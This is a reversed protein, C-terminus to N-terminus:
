KEAEMLENVHLIFNAATGTVGEKKPVQYMPNKLEPHGKIFTKLDQLTKGGKELVTHFEERAKYKADALAMQVRSHANIEGEGSTEIPIFIMEKYKETVAVQVADSITSPMCGFPKISLVMHSLNHTHYYINKAIEMYGEGGEIRINYYPNGLRQLTGINLLDHSPGGVAHVLRSYERQYLKQGLSLLLYKKYYGWKTSIKKIPKSWPVVVLDKRDKLRLMHKSFMFLLYTAVPEPLVEADENELFKMMNYNGESQSTMAWFEGTLKVKTKLRLRDVEVTGFKRRVEILANVFYKNTIQDLLVGIFEVPKSLNIKELLSKWTGKLQVHKKNKLVDHLYELSEKIAADTAGEVVEYPRIKCTIENILDGLHIANVLALFFRLNVDIANGKVQQDMGGSKQFVIVRFGEFGTNRLVLRYQDEIMGFRCPANCGTTLFVYKEIIEERTMGGAELTKLFKILSGSIFYTPNCYGNNGNERGYNFATLDTNPLAKCKFGLGQLSGELLYDHGPTIGGLLITTNDRQDITFPQEVPLKYHEKKANGSNTNQTQCTNISKTLM